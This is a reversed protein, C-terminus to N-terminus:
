HRESRRSRRTCSHEFSGTLVLFQEDMVRLFLHSNNRLVSGSIYVPYSSAFERRTPLAAYRNIVIAEIIVAQSQKSDTSAQRPPDQLWAANSQSGGVHVTHPGMQPTRAKIM